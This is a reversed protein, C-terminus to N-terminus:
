PDLESIYEEGFDSYGEIELALNCFVSAGYLDPFLTLHNINMRNLALLATVRESNPISVRILAASAKGGFLRQVFPTVDEGNPSRTFLGSQNILRANDDTM